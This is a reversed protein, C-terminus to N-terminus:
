HGLATRFLTLYKKYLGTALDHAADTDAIRTLQDDLSVANGDPAREGPIAHARGGGPLTGALHRPDTQAPAVGPQTGALVADFSPVDRAQFGPTNANAVNQALLQQRRDVWALRKEALDFLSLNSPDM